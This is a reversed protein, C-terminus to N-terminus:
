AASRWEQTGSNAHDFVAVRGTSYSHFAAMHDLYASWASSDVLAAVQETISAHLREALERRAHAKDEASTTSTRAARRTTM